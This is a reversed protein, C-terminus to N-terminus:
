FKETKNVFYIGFTQDYCILGEHDKGQRNQKTEVM